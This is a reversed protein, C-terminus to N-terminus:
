KKRAYGDLSRQHLSSQRWNVVSSTNPANALLDRAHGTLPDNSLLAVIVSTDLYLNM